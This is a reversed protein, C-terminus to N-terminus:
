SGADDQIGLLIATAASALDAAAREEPEGESPSSSPRSSTWSGRCPPPPPEEEAPHRVVREVEERTEKIRRGVWRPTSVLCKPSRLNDYDKPDPECCLTM